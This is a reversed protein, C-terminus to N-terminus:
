IAARGANLAAGKSRRVRPTPLSKEEAKDRRMQFNTRRGPPLFSFPFSFIRGRSETWRRRRQKRYIDRPIFRIKSLRSFSPLSSSPKIVTSQWSSMEKSHLNFGTGLKIISPQSNLVPHHTFNSPPYLCPYCLTPLNSIRVTFM